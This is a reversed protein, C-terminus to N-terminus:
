RGPRAYHSLLSQEFEPTLSERSVYEPATRVTEVPLVITITRAAWSVSQVTLPPVLVRLGGIWNRTDVEVYRVRWSEDDYLFDEVHGIRGDVAKVRYGIVERSSRLHVDASEGGAAPHVPPARLLEAPLSQAGWLGGGEWYVPFIFYNNYELEKQRSVPKETDIDPSEAAQRRTLSVSIAGKAEVDQATVAMPSVLVRRDNFERDTDVVLYRITWQEDDFFVQEVFGIRGDTANVSVHRLERVSRIM